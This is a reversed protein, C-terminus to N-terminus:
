KSGKNKIRLKLVNVVSDFQTPTLEDISPFELQKAIQSWGIDAQVLLENIKRTKPNETTTLVTTPIVDILEDLPEGVTLERFIVQQNPKGAKVPVNEVESEDLLGLGCISLTVRRKAQTIAKKRANGLADGKLNPPIMACGIDEDSRGDQTTARVHVILNDSEMKQSLIEISVGHIRRLQDAAGKGAYLTLKGGLSLLQVGAILPNLGISGNVQRLLLVQQENTLKSLDNKGIASILADHNIEGM